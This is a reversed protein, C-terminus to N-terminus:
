PRGGSAGAGAGPWFPRSLSRGVVFYLGVFGILTFLTDGASVGASAGQDTRFLGYVLWPQRGLEAAAWGATNAIFPFPFSFLILWLLVRNAELRGRWTQVAGALMLVIFLTGLGAM